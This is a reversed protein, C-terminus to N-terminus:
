AEVRRLLRLVAREVAEDIGPPEVAGGRRLAARITTGQEFGKVVRPDVYSARCVAPTNGLDGAVERMVQSVTKRLGSPSTPSAKGAFAVAALVTAHWTRFDKASSDKSVVEKVYDAIDASGLDVWSRTGRWALLEEGGGRRRKLTSVADAIPEDAISFTRHVGSKAPYAFEVQGGARVRVHSRLLTALGFSNNEQAYAEGGIRFLGLDLLRFAIALARERPMGSLELDEAVRTRAQPLQKAFGLIRRHKDHDRDQRWQPHYLYQRRGKVDTGVAQLHGNPWPCIWVDQWAPPIVLDQIRQVQEASLRSGEDDRYTFGRGSRRRTWGPRDPSSRRLRLVM